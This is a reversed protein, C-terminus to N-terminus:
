CALAFSGASSRRSFRSDGALSADLTTEPACVRLPVNAGGSPWEAVPLVQGCDYWLEIAVSLAQRPEAWELAAQVDFSRHIEALELAGRRFARPGLWAYWGIVHFAGPESGTNHTKQCRALSV